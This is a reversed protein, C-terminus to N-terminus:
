LVLNMVCLTMEFYSLQKVGHSSFLIYMRRWSFSYLNVMCPKGTKMDRKKKKRCLSLKTWLGLSLTFM